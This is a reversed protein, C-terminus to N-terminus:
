PAQQHAGGAKGSLVRQDPRPGMWARLSGTKVFRDIERGWAAEVEAPVVGPDACLRVGDDLCAEEEPRHTHVSYNSSPYFTDENSIGGWLLYGSASAKPDSDTAAIDVGRSVLTQLLSESARAWSSRVQFDLVGYPSVCGSMAGLPPPNQEDGPCPTPRAGSWSLPYASRREPHYPYRWNMPGAAALLLEDVQCLRRGYPAIRQELQAVDLRNLGDTPWAEGHVGPFPLRAICFDGLEFRGVRLMRKQWDERRIQSEDREGLVFSGGEVSIMGRPCAFDAPALSVGPAPLPPYPPIPKEPEDGRDAHEARDSHEAREACGAGGLAMSSALVLAVVSLLSSGPPPATM